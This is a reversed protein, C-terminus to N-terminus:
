VYCNTKTQMWIQNGDRGVGQATPGELILDLCGDGNTDVLRPSYSGGVTISQAPLATASIDAFSITTGNSTNKYVQVYSDSGWGNTFTDWPRTFVLVDLKGDGDIDAVACAFNHTAKPSNYKVNFYPVPLYTISTISAGTSDFTVVANPTNIPTSSSLNENNDTFVIESHGDGLFDGACVATAFEEGHNNPSVNAYQFQTFGTFTSKNGPTSCNGRFGVQNPAILDVCGDGNIDAVAIQNGLANAFSWYNTLAITQISYTGNPQSIFTYAKTATIAADYSEVLFLDDIGDGNFDAVTPYAGNITAPLNPILQASVEKFAGDAQECYIYFPANAAASSISGNRATTQQVVCNSSTAGAINTGAKGLRAVKLATSTFDLGNSPFNQITTTTASANFNSFFKSLSSVVPAPAAPSATGGGGGGGGGCATLMVLTVVSCLLRISKIAMQEKRNKFVKNKGISRLMDTEIRPNLAVVGQLSPTGQGSSSCSQKM